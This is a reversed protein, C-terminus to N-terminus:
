KVGRYAALESMAGNFDSNLLENCEVAAILADLADALADIHNIAHVAAEIHDFCSAMWYRGDEICYHSEGSKTIEGAHESGMLAASVPLEFIDSMRKM